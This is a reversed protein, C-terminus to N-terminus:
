RHLPRGATARTGWRPPMKAATREILDFVIPVRRVGSGPHSRPGPGSRRPRLGPWLATPLTGRRSPRPQARGVCFRSACLRSPACSSSRALARQDRHACGEGRAGCGVTSATARDPASLAPNTSLSPIASVVRVAVPKPTPLQTGDDHFTVRYRGAPLAPPAGGCTPLPGLNGSESMVHLADLHQVSVKYHWEARHAARSWM